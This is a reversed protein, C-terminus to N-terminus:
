QNGYRIIFPVKNSIYEDLSCPKIVNLIIGARDGDVKNNPMDLVRTNIGFPVGRVSRALLYKHGKAIKKLESKTIPHIM